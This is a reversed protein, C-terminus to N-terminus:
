LALCAPPRSHSPPLSSPPLSRESARSDRDNPTRQVAFQAALHRYHQGDRARESLLSSSSSSASSLSTVSVARRRKVCACVSSCVAFVCVMVSAANLMSKRRMEMAPSVLESAFVNGRPNPGFPHPPIRWKIAWFLKMCVRCDFDSAHKASCCTLRYSLASFNTEHPAAHFISEEKSSGWM